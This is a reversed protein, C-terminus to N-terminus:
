EYQGTTLNFSMLCGCNKCKQTQLSQTQGFGTIVDHPVGHNEVYHDFKCLNILKAKGCEECYQINGELKGYKHIHFLKKLFNQM